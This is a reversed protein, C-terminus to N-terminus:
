IYLHLMSFLSFGLHNANLMICNEMKCYNEKGFLIRATNVPQAIVQKWYCEIVFNNDLNRLLFNNSHAM